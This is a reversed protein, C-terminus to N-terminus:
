IGEEEIIDDPLDNDCAERATTTLIRSLCDLGADFAQRIQKRKLFPTMAEIMNSREAETLHADLGKDSLIFIRREFLSM